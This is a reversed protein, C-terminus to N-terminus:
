DHDFSSSFVGAKPVDPVRLQELQARRRMMLSSHRTGLVNGFMVSFREMSLDPIDVDLVPPDPFTIEGDPLEKRFDKPPPTPSREGNYVSQEHDTSPNEADVSQRPYSQVDTSYVSPSPSPNLSASPERQQRSDSPPLEKATTYSVNSSLLTERTPPRTASPKPPALKSAAPKPSVAKSTVEKSSAPTTSDPAAPKSSSELANTDALVPEQLGRAAMAERTKDTLLTAPGPGPGPTRLFGFAKPGASRPTPPVNSAQARLPNARPAPSKPSVPVSTEVSSRGAMSATDQLGRQALAARTKETLLTAPGPGPGPTRLFNFTRRPTSAQSATLQYADGNSAEHLQGQLEPAPKQLDRAALAERTKDTLMTAPGPGPGPTRLFNFTKPSQGKQSREQEQLSQLVAKSTNPTKSPGASSHKPDHDLSHRGPANPTVGKTPQVKPAMPRSETPHHDLSHRGVLTSNRAGPATLKAERARISAMKQDAPEVDPARPSASDSAKPKSTTKSEVHRFDQAKPSVPTAAGEKPSSQTEVQKPAAARPSTSSTAPPKSPITRSAPHHDLSRRGSGPAKADKSISAPPEMSHRGPALPALEQLGRSALQERTKETLLTAPGSGAGPTRLFDFLGRKSKSQPANSTSTTTTVPTSPKSRTSDTTPVTRHKAAPAEPRKSVAPDPRNTSTEPAKSGPGQSKPTRSSGSPPHRREEGAALKNAHVTASEANDPRRTTRQAGDQRHTRPENPKTSTPAGPRSPRDIQEMVNEYSGESRPGLSPRERESRHGATEKHASVTETPAKGRARSQEADRPDNIALYPSAIPEPSPDQKRGYDIGAKDLGSITHAIGGRGRTEGDM